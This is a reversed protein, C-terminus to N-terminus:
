ATNAGDDGFKCTLKWPGAAIVLSHCGLIVESDNQTITISELSGHKVRVDAVTADLIIRVGM